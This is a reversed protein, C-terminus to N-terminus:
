KAVAASDKKAVVSSSEEAKDYEAFELSPSGEKRREHNSSSNPPMRHQCYVLDGPHGKRAM